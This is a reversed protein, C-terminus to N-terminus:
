SRYQAPYGPFHLGRDARHPLPSFVEDVGYHLVEEALAGVRNGVLLAYVPQQISYALERAKGILEFTVPHIEGDYHDVYVSVGRWESKDVIVAPEEVYEFVGQPGKRVCIKCVKCGATIELRGESSCCLAGFPCLSLLAQPDTVREHHIIIGGM